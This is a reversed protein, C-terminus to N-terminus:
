IRRCTHAKSKEIAQATDEEHV